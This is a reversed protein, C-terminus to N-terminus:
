GGEAADLAATRKETIAQIKLIGDGAIVALETSTEGNREQKRIERLTEVAVRLCEAMADTTERSNDVAYLALLANISHTM